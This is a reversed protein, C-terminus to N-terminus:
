PAVDVPHKGSVESALKIIKMPVGKDDRIISYSGQIVIRRGTRTYRVYQGPRPIGKSLDSWFQRYEESNADAPHVFISHHKGLIAELDFEMLKLFNSNASLIKGDLNFEIAAIGSEEIAKLRSEAERTKKIMEKQAHDLETIDTALKLIQYPAGTTTRLISYSGQILVTKGTKTLRSYKGPRPIGSALDAWFKKYEDSAAVEERVFMRHHKGKIEHLRYGMLRLFSENATLITGQLSFEISAIGSEDIATLRSETERGKREIEEQTAQLEEMNQRMEEEQARLEEAQQQSQELLRRTRDSVKASSLTSAISEALKIVFAIEHQEFIRFSAIELVGRVDENLKLPVIIINKPNAEGLGSTIRVYDDPIEKLVIVDGEIWAQGVLGDGKGVKKEIYKKKDWAYTAMLELYENRKNEDNVVFLSGQNAGVYKVLERLLNDCLAVVDNQNNRMVEGFKALGETAWIRKRDEANFEVLKNRMFLLAKGLEDKEGAPVFSTDYKANAIGNAFAAGNKLNAALRILGATIQGIDDSSKASLTLSLEGQSIRDISDRIGELPLSVQRKAVEMGGVVCAVTVVMMVLLFVRLYDNKRESSAVFGQVLRHFQNLMLTTNAHIYSLSIQSGGLGNEGAETSFDQESDLLVNEVHGRYLKWMENSKKLDPVVTEPAAKLQTGDQSGAIKGGKSLVVLTEDILTVMKRIEGQVPKGKELLGVFFAIRQSLMRNRGAADITAADKAVEFLYFHVGAFTIVASLCFIGFFFGIKTKTEANRFSKM